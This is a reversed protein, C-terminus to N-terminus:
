RRSLVSCQSHRRVPLPSKPPFVSGPRFVRLREQSDFQQAGDLYDFRDEHCTLIILQLPGTPHPGYPEGRAARALIELMQRHKGLDAHALPDDLIAVGSENRALLGGVALRVLLSLQELTGYSECQLEVPDGDAAHAPVLGSPLLQDGFSLGAYDTLGVQM